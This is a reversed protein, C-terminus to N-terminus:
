TPGQRVRPLCQYQLYSSMYKNGMNLMISSKDEILTLYSTNRVMRCSISMMQSRRSASSAPRVVICGWTMRLWMQSQWPAPAEWFAWLTRAPGYSPPLHTATWLVHWPRMTELTLLPMNHYHHLNLVMQPLLPFELDNLWWVSTSPVWLWQSLTGSVWPWQVFTGSVWPWQVFTGSVWPWQEFTGSVWPWQVFTGPVWPWETM